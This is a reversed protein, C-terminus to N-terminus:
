PSNESSKMNVGPWLVHSRGNFLEIDLPTFPNSPWGHDGKKKQLIRPWWPSGRIQTSGSRPFKRQSGLSLCQSWELLPNRALGLGLGSSKKFFEYVYRFYSRTKQSIYSIIKNNMRSESIQCSLEKPAPVM